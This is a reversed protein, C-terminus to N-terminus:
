KSCDKDIQNKKQRISKELDETCKLFEEAALIANIHYKDQSLYILDGDQLLLKKFHLLLKTVLQQVPLKIEDESTAM